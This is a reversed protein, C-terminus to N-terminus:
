RNSPTLAEVVEFPTIREFFCAIDQMNRLLTATVLSDNHFAYNTIFYWTCPWMVFFLAITPQGNPQENNHAKLM